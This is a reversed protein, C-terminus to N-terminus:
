QAVGPPAIDSSSVLHDIVNSLLAEPGAMVWDAHAVRARYVELPVGIRDSVVMAMAVNLAELFEGASKLEEATGRVGASGNHFLITSRATAYRHDCLPSELIVAAMSYAAGDVICTVRIDKSKKVDELARIWRSGLFISGGHSDIRLTIEKAGAGALKVFAVKAAEMEDEQVDGVDVTNGYWFRPVSYAVPTFAPRPPTAVALRAPTCCVLAFLIQFRIM